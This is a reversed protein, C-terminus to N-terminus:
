DSTQEVFRELFIAALRAHAAHLRNRREAVFTRLDKVLDESPVHHLDFVVRARAARADHERFFKGALGACFGSWRARADMCVRGVGTGGDSRIPMASSRSTPSKPPRLSSGSCCRADVSLIKFRPDSSSM